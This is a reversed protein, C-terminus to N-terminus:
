ENSFLFHQFTQEEENLKGLSQEVKEVISALQCKAKLSMILLSLMVRSIVVWDHKDLKMQLSRIDLLYVMQNLERILAAQAAVEVGEFWEEFNVQRLFFDRAPNSPLQDM